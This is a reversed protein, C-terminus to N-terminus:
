PHARAQLKQSYMMYGDMAQAAIPAVDPERFELWAYGKSKATRKSRSLRVNKVAGFQGFFGAGGGCCRGALSTLHVRMM